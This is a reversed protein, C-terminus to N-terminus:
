IPAVLGVVGSMTTSDSPAVAGAIAIGYQSWAQANTLGAVPCGVVVTIGASNQVSQPVVYSAAQQTYYVQFNDGSVDNYATVLVQDLQIVDVSGVALQDSNFWGMYITTYSQGAGPSAFQVDNILTQRPQIISANAAVTWLGGVYVDIENALYCGRITNTGYTVDAVQIGIGQDEITSNQIVVNGTFYDQFQIGCAGNGAAAEAASGLDVFSDITISNSQYGIIGINWLNWAVFNEIEGGDAVPGAGLGGTYNVWWYALGIPVAGYAENSAFELIPIANMNVMVSQGPQSPDAGQYAAISVTGEGTEGAGAIGYYQYAFGYPGNTQLDTVINAVVYNNPNGFWFGDGGMGQDASGRQGTGNIRMVFNGAFDNYSSLGDVMVGSGAWNVVDNNEILGYYSNVVNIGWVFPMPTLPCTVVNGNFTFQHSDSQPSSPGFLDLFTIANRNQEDTGVHSVNGFQDFTTNDFLQSFNSNLFETDTTRGMGSFSTYNINVNAYQTFLAYGRTGTASQSHISVNRTMDVVQPLYTLVGSASYAGLHNYQLPATLTITLGNASISQITASEWEPTYNSEEDSYDLQRTDPLELKDGVQWGTAPSALYLVTNGANANQALTVYPVKVAGYTTVTGLAILGNGYQEPDITTNIAQNVWVVTATINSPIPNAQTGIDLTGGQLVMLNVVFMQTNTTTSFTLTGGSLVEVTNLPISDTADNVDYTVTNGSSINVIDGAEPVRDLSWTAPNSWNGSQVSTITPTYGFNPIKLYPTILYSGNGSSGSDVDVTVQTQGSQGNHDTATLTVTYAGYNAFTHTPDAGSVPSTGDGFNWSYTFGAATDASSPDTASAQFAAAIGATLSSPPTIIPTPPTDNITISTTYDSYDGLSDTIRGHVVLTAPSNDVYSEPITATPNSSGTIEFTGSNNFDFSYTYPGTGGGPNSFTVTTTTSGANTSSPGTFTATPTSGVPAIRMADAVIDQWGGPNTLVVRITGSTLPVTAVTQFAVGGFIPGSPSLGQNVTVTQVLTSGDYISYLANGHSPSGNWTVQVLYSGSVIGSAQWTASADGPTSPNYYLQEGNYGGAEGIWAPGTTSFGSSTDAIIFPANQVTFTTSYDTFGNHQDFIVGYITYSGPQSFTYSATTSTGASAYSTALGSPSLAFSYHFGATTDAHSPDSANSFTATVPDGAVGPGSNSMTATPAVDNITISTTYDTYDGNSDTIRGHVVLTAPGNDVYGEPITATPSTSNNIEFTGSDNFDYSYTYGGSGGSPNSFTVAANTSGANVSSPGSFTATPPPGIPSIRIDNADLDGGSQSVLVVHISGSTLSVSALTQFAMGGLVPGSPSQQQNVSVSQLLTAGNFIEYVADNTNLPSATWTAQVLYSDPTVGSVQWSASADGPPAINSQSQAAYGAQLSSWGKGNEAFGPGYDGLIMAPTPVTAILGEVDTATDHSSDTVTLSVQYPVNLTSPTFSFSAGTGSDVPVNSQLLQWAYSPSGTGGSVEGVLSVPTEANVHGNTPLGEIIAQLPAPVLRDELSELCLPLGQFPKRKDTSSWAQKKPRQRKRENVM